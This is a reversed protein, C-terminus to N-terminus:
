HEHKHEGDGLPIGFKFRAEFREHQGLHLNADSIKQGDAGIGLDQPWGAIQPMITLTWWYHEEAYHLTPGFFYASHEQNGTNFDPFEMHNRFEIGAFWKDKLRYNAGLSWEAWLEKQTGGDAKEWEPELMLNFATILTDDLFNKQLILRGELAREIRDQGYEKDRLSIEPEIYFALGIGDKYPSLVRYMFEVSLGNVDFADTNPLNKSTDEPDYVNRIKNYSTNLYLAAQLRDTVGYEMEFRVDLAQYDGTAKGSRFTQIQEYEWQDGPTTEATYIYGFMGESAHAVVGTFLSLFLTWKLAFM